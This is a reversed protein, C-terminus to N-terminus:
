GTRGLVVDDAALRRPGADAISSMIAAMVVDRSAEVQRRAIDEAADVDKADIASLLADHDNGHQNFQDDLDLGIFFLRQVEELLNCLTTTLRASGSSRALEAHFRSAQQVRDAYSDEARHTALDRLRSRADTDASTAALRAAAPELLLRLHFMERVDGLTIDSVRYGQRPIVQVFGEHSLMGLAERVPTKSMGLDAALEGEYMSTGPALECTLIDTKMALYARTTASQQPPHSPEHAPTHYRSM